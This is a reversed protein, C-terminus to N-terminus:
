AVRVQQTTTELDIYYATPVELSHCSFTEDCVGVNTKAKKIV